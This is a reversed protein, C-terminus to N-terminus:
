NETGRSNNILGARSTNFYLAYSEENMRRSQEVLAERADRATDAAGVALGIIGGIVMGIPGFSAGAQVGKATSDTVHQIISITKKTNNVGVDTIYDETLSIYKSYSYDAAHSIYGTVTEALMIIAGAKGANYRAIASDSDSDSSNSKGDGGTGIAPSPEDPKRDVSNDIIEVTIKHAENKAM